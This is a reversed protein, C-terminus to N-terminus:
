EDHNVENLTNCMDDVEKKCKKPESIRCWVLGFFKKQIYYVLYSEGGYYSTTAKARVRYKPETNQKQM